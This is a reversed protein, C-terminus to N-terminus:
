EAVAESAEPVARGNPMPQGFRVVGKIAIRRRIEHGFALDIKQPPRNKLQAGANGTPGKKPREIENGM